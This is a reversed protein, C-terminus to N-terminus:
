GWTPRLMPIAPRLRDPRRSPSEVYTGNAVLKKLAIELAELEIRDAEPRYQAWIRCFEQQERVNALAAMGWEIAEPGLGLLKGLVLEEAMAADRPGYIGDDAGSAALVPTLGMASITPVTRNFHPEESCFFLTSEAPVFQVRREELLGALILIGQFVDDITRNYSGLVLVLREAMRPFNYRLYAAMRDAYTVGHQNPYGGCVMLAADPYQDLCREAAEIRRIGRENPLWPNDQDYQATPLFVVHSVTRYVAPM